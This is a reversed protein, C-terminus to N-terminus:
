PNQIRRLGDWGSQDYDARAPPGPEDSKCEAANRLCDYVTSWTRNQNYRQMRGCASSSALEHGPSSAPQIWPAPVRQVLMRNAVSHLRDQGEQLGARRKQVRTTERARGRM